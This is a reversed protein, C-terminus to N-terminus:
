HRRGQATWLLAQSQTPVEAGLGPAQFAVEPFLVPGVEMRDIGLSLESLDTSSDLPALSSPVLILVPCFDTHLGAMPVSM